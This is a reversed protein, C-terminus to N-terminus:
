SYEHEIYKDILKIFLSFVAMVAYWIPLFVIQSIYSTANIKEISTLDERQTERAKERGGGERGGSKM